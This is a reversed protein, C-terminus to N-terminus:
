GVVATRPRGQDDPNPQPAPAAIDFSGVIPRITGLTRKRADGGCCGGSGATLTFAVAGKGAWPPIRWRIEATSTVTGTAINELDGAPYVVTASVIVVEQLPNRVSIRIIQDEGAQVIPKAVRISRVFPHSRVRITQSMM